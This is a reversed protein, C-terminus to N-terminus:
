KVAFDGQIYKAFSALVGDLFEDPNEVKLAISFIDNKEVTEADFAIESLKNGNTFEEAQFRHDGINQFIIKVKKNNLFLETEFKADKKGGVLTIEINKVYIEVLGYGRSKFGGLKAFGTNALSVTTAIFALYSPSLNRAVVKGEFKSGEAVYEVDFPGHSVGGTMPNIQIHKRILLLPTNTPYAETFLVRSAYASSADAKGFIEHVYNSPNSINLGNLLRLFNARFFGKLSSGPIIPNGNSDKVVPLDSELPSTGGRGSGIRIPSKATIDLTINYLLTLKSFRYENSM